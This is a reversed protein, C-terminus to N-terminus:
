GVENAVRSDADAIADDVSQSGSMIATHMDGLIGQIAATKPSTPNEAKVVHTSYAFQSLDDQPMGDQGFITSAVDDTILAPTIGIGALAAAGDPGAVWAVFKKAAEQKEPSTNANVAMGTPDGFTVPTKDLGTTSSDLQPAPAMGWNFTDADGSARQSLLTAIYWTGMLMMAAHQKGFEAQYTLKNGTVTNFDIQAGSSQLDLVREYYPKMYEYKGTLVGAGEPQNNAFGQLTSQWAHEYDGYADVGAGKLAERVKKSAAAYDDWTWTGDPTAVGAKDFLDKNYYLVWSDQRYPLAYQKGDVQYSAAGSIGDPLAVDSLDLLQGGEQFTTVYKVEKQTIVDPGAGAALDATVLTNYNTADYEKLEVTIDPNAAHFGDALLQFEPTTDFSWGSVTITVPDGSGSDGAASETSGADSSASDGSGSAGSTGADSAGSSSSSNSSSSTDGGSGGCATLSLAAVAALAVGVVTKRKM